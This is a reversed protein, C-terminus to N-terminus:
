SPGLIKLYIQLKGDYKQQFEKIIWSDYHISKAWNAKFWKSWHIAYGSSWTTMYKMNSADLIPKLISLIAAWLTPFDTSFILNDFEIERLIFWFVCHSSFIDPRNARKGQLIAKKLLVPHHIWHNRPVVRHKLPNWSFWELFWETPSAQASQFRDILLWQPLGQFSDIKPNFLTTKSLSFYAVM